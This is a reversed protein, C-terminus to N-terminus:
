KGHSGGVLKFFAQKLNRAKAKRMIQKSNGVAVIEGKDIFLIKDCLQAAEGIIHTSFIVTKGQAKLSKVIELMKKSLLPDLGTTLEDFIVLEPNHILTNAIAVRRRQGKSMNRILKKSNELEVLNLVRKIMNDNAKIDYLEATFKLHEYATMDGYLFDEEPLYGVLRKVEINNEVTNLGNVFCSGSSPYIIGSIIKLTTTKGAGNPGIIGLIENQRVDFSVSRLAYFSDYKKSVKRLSVFSPLAVVM